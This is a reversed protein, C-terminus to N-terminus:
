GNTEIEKQIRHATCAAAVDVYMLTVLKGLLAAAGGFTVVTGLMCVYAFPITVACQVLLVDKLVTTMKMNPYEGADLKKTSVCLGLYSIVVASFAIATPACLFLIPAFVLADFCLANIKNWAPLPDTFHPRQSEVVEVEPLEGSVGAMQAAKNAVQRVLGDGIKALEYHRVIPDLFISGIKSM